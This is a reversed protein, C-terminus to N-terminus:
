SAKLAKLKKEAEFYGEFLGEIIYTDNFIITPTGVIEIDQIEEQMMLVNLQLSEWNEQKKLNEITEKQIQKSIFFSEVEKLSKLSLLAAAKQLDKKNLVHCYIKVKVSPNSKLYEFLSLLTKYCAICQFSIFVKIEDDGNKFFYPVVSAQLFFSCLLIFIKM